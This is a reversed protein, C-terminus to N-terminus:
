SVEEYVFVAIGNEARMGWRYTKGTDRDTFKHPMTDAKHANIKQHVAAIDEAHNNVKQALEIAPEVVKENLVDAHAPDETTFHKFEKEAM